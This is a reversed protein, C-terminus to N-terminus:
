SVRKCVVMYRQYNARYPHCTILTILDEGQRILLENIDTPNIIKIEAVEYVLQERFNQIYIKDGYELKQINRFFAAKAYGRHGAIVSNTNVGGIPYSTQTLHVAGKAMNAKNAGLIIPLEIEMKPIKIYGITNNYIGYEDLNITPQEYSFPDVLDKQNSEFLQENENKLFQYLRDLNGSNQEESIKTIFIEQEKKVDQRYFYDCAYPYIITGVGILIFLIAVISLVISRKNMNIYEERM